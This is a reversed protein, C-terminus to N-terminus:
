KIYDYFRNIFIEKTFNEKFYKRANLGLQKKDDCNIFNDIANKLGLYDEAQSTFGCGAENIVQSTEGNACTIIPKAAATCSLVKNPLTYSILKNDALTILMADAMEYVEPMKSFDIKGYFKINQLDFSKALSECDKKSSGDGIIHFFIAQDKLENAAKIITQVSQMKGINGAFILDVFNNKLPKKGVTLFMDNDYFPLHYINDSISLVDSFYEKFQKSSTFIKNASKYINKSLKYIPKYIKSDHNVGGATLSEPWLDFTYIYMPKGTLKKLVIAPLVMTIPSTQIVIIADFDRKIFLAKFCSTIAFSIYNFFLRVKSHGRAILGCRKVKVGKITESRRKFFKYGKYIHGEPYNPLGTLIRVDNGDSALDFCIKSLPYQEPYFHQCVFQLKM